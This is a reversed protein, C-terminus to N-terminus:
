KLAISMISSGRGDPANLNRDMHTRFMEQRKEIIQSEGAPKFHSGQGLPHEIWGQDISVSDM